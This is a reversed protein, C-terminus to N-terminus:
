LGTRPRDSADSHYRDLHNLTLGEAANSSV